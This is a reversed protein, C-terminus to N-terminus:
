ERERLRADPPFPALCTTSFDVQKAAMGAANREIFSLVQKLYQQPYHQYTNHGCRPLVALEGNPLHRYFAVAQEVEFLASRDPYLVLTPCTVLALAPRIDFMGSGYEGGRTRAMEYVTEARDYGHWRLLSERIPPDLEQFPAPFHQKNFEVLTSSSFCLTSSIVLQRVTNPFRGAYDVGVVGGECQGVMNVSHIDLQECLGALEEVSEQRFRDSVYFEDFDAGPESQGYGRRDYLIAKYGADVLGPYIGDWMRCSSFGHHLLLIPEGEGHVEYYVKRGRIGAFPM